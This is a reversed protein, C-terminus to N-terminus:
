FESVSRERVGGGRQVCVHLWLQCLFGTNGEDRVDAFLDLTSLHGVREGQGM